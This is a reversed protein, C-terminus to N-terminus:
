LGPIVRRVAETQYRYCGSAELIPAIPMLESRIGAATAVQRALDLSESASAREPMFLGLVRDAGLAKACLMCTVSSDIGGSLGVVAGQRHLIQGVQHRIASTIEEVEQAADIALVDRSFM